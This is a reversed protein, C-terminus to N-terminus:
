RTCNRYKNVFKYLAVARRFLETVTVDEDAAM